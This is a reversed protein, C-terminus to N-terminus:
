CRLPLLAAAGVCRRSACPAGLLVGSRSRDGAVLRSPSESKAACVGEGPRARSRLSAFVIPDCDTGPYEGTPGSERESTEVSRFSPALCGYRAVTFAPVVVLMTGLALVLSRRYWARLGSRDGRQIRVQLMKVMESVRSGGLM